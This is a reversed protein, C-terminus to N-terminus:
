NMLLCNRRVDRPKFDDNRETRIFLVFCSHRLESEDDGKFKADLMPDIEGKKTCDSTGTMGAGFGAAYSTLLWSPSLM